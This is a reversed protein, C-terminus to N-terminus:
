TMRDIYYINNRRISSYGGCLVSTLVMIGPRWSKWALIESESNYRAGGSERSIGWLHGGLDSGPEGFVNRPGGAVPRGESVLTLATGSM